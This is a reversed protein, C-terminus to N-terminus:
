PMPLNNDSHDINYGYEVLCEVIDIYGGECAAMNSTCVTMCINYLNQKVIITVNMTTSYMYGTFSTIFVNNFNTREDDNTDYFNCLRDFDFEGRSDSESNSDSDSDCDYSCVYMDSEPKDMLMDQHNGDKDLKNCM